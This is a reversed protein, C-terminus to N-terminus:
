RRNNWCTSKSVTLSWVISGSVPVLFIVSVVYQSPLLILNVIARLVWGTHILSDVREWCLLLASFRPFVCRKFSLASMQVNVPSRKPTNCPRVAHSLIEIASNESSKWSPSIWRSETKERTSVLTTLEPLRSVSSTSGMMMIIMIMIMAAESRCSAKEASFATKREYFFFLSFFGVCPWHLIPVM